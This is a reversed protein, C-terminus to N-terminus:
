ERHPKISDAVPAPSPTPVSSSLDVTVPPVKGEVIRMAYSTFTQNAKLSFIVKNNMLDVKVANNESNDSDTIKDMRHPKWEVTIKENNADIIRLGDQSIGSDQTIKENNIWVVWDGASHYAISALYFQPYTFSKPEDQMNAMKELNKLFDDEAIGKSNGNLHQEYFARASRISAIDSDSLLISKMGVNNSVYTVQKNQSAVDATAPNQPAPEPLAASQSVPNGSPPMTQAWLFPQPGLTVALITLHFTLRLYKM